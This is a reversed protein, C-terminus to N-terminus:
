DARGDDALRDVVAQMTAMDKPEVGVVLFRKQRSTEGSLVTIQSKAVSFAEALLGIIARNAKGREPVASVSVKLMGNHEGGISSRKAGAQARVPVVVGRAHVELKVM